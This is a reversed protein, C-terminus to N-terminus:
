RGIMGAPRTIFGMSICPDYRDPPEICRVSVLENNAFAKYRDLAPIKSLTSAPYIVM